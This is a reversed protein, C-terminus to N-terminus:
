GHTIGSAALACNLANVPFGLVHWGHTRCNSALAPREVAPAVLIHPYTYFRRHPLCVVTSCPKPLTDPIYGPTSWSQRFSHHLAIACGASLLNMLWDGRRVPSELPSRLRRNRLLQTKQVLERRVLQVVFAFLLNDVSKRRAQM